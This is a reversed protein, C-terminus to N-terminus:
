HLKESAMAELKREIEVLTQIPDESYKEQMEKTWLKDFNEANREIWRLYAQNGVEGRGMALSRQVGNRTELDIETLSVLEPKDQRSELPNFRNEM